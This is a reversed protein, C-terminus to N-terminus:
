GGIVRRSLTVTVIAVAMFTATAALSRPSLRSLGCIGHGSTCGSGLATGFGVLLGGAVAAAPGGPFAIRAYDFGGGYGALAAGALVGAIFLGRWAFEADIAASLLGKFIGSLGAIRGVAALLLVAALGILAGGALGALPTFPTIM